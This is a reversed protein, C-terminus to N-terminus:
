SCVPWSRPVRYVGNSSALRNAVAAFRWAESEDCRVSRETFSALGNERGWARALQAHERLPHPVSPHDWGWLFTGDAPNYTGIVQIPATAAV